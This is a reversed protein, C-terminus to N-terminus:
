RVVIVPVTAWEVVGKAVSGVLHEVRPSMGTHGVVITDIDEEDGYETLLYIPDGYLMVPELEISRESALEVASDLLDNGRDEADEINEIILRDAADSLTTIPESEFIELVTPDVVHVATISGDMAEAMDLAYELAREAESSHDLGVLLNMRQDYVVVHRFRSTRDLLTLISMTRLGRCGAPRGLLESVFGDRHSTMVPAIETPLIEVGALRQFIVHCFSMWLLINVPPHDGLIWGAIQLEERHDTDAGLDELAHTM